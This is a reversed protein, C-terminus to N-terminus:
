RVFDFAKCIKWILIWSRSNGEDERKDLFLLVEFGSVYWNQIDLCFSFRGKTTHRNAQSRLGELEIVALM